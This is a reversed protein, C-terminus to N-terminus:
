PPKPAMKQIGCGDGANCDSGHNLKGALGDTWAAAKIIPVYNSPDPPTPLSRPTALLHIPPCPIMLQNLVAALSLDNNADGSAGCAYADYM